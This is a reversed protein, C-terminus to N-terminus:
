AKKKEPKEFLTAIPYWDPDGERTWHTAGDFNKKSDAAVVKRDETLYWVKGTGLMMGGKIWYHYRSEMFNARTPEDHAM